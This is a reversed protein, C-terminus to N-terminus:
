VSNRQAIVKFVEGYSGTGIIEVLQYLKEPDDRNITIKRGQSGATIELTKSFSSSTSSHSLMQESNPTTAGSIPASDSM